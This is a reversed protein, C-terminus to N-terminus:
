QYQVQSPEEDKGWILQVAFWMLIAIVIMSPYPGILICGLSQTPLSANYSYAGAYTTDVYGVCNLSNSAKFLDVAVGFVPYMGAIFVLAMIGLLFTFIIKYNFM